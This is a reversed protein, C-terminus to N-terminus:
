GSQKEQWVWNGGIMTAVPSLERLESPSVKYPDQDLLILDAYYGPSLKGLRDEMSAAFAAGTTYARLAESLTIKEEAVWGEPGPSGDARQRTVAAHLGWFPNPFEVP